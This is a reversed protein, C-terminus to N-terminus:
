HSGSSIKYYSKISFRHYSHMIKVPELFKVNGQMKKEEERGERTELGERRGACIEETERVRARVTTEKRDM